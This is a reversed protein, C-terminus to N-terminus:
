RKRNVIEYPWGMNDACKRGYGNHQSNEDTLTKACNCCVGYLSGFAAAQAPTMKWEPRLKRIAGAAYEFWVDTVDTEPDTDTRLQKAYPKGSGHVAIQVKFITGDPTQYMGPEIESTTATTKPGKPKAPVKPKPSDLLTSILSSADRKSLADLTAQAYPLNREEMLKILFNIQKETADGKVPAAPAQPEDDWPDVDFPSGFADYDERVYDGYQKTM